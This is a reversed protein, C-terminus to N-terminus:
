KKKRQAAMAKKVRAEFRRTTRTDWEWAGKRAGDRWWPWLGRVTKWDLWEVVRRATGAFKNRGIDFPGRVEVRCLWGVRPGLVQFSCCVADRINESAHMGNRCRTPQEAKRWRRGGYGRAEMWVGKRVKRGDNFGLTKEPCLVHWGKRVEPKKAM